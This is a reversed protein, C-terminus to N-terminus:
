LDLPLGAEAASALLAAMGVLVAGLYARRNFRLVQVVGEFRGRPMIEDADTM